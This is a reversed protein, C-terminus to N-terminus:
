IIFLNLDFENSLCLLCMLDYFLLVCLHIKIFQTHQNIACIDVRKNSIENFVYVSM